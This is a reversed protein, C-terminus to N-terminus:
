LNSYIVHFSVSVGRGNIGYNEVDHSKGVVVTFKPVGACAVAHAM